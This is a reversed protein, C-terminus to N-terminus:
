WFVPKRWNCRVIFLYITHTITLVMMIVEIIKQVPYKEYTYVQSKEDLLIEDDGRPKITIKKTFKVEGSRIAYINTDSDGEKYIVYGKNHTRQKFLYIMPKLSHRPWSSFIPLGILFDVQINIKKKESLGLIQQYPKKDLVAFHCDEKCIISAARPKLQAEILSLEGFSGGAPIKAVEISVLKNEGEKPTNIIVGVSGKLIVYFTTGM